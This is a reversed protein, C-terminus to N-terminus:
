LAEPPSIRYKDRRWPGRLVRPELWFWGHMRVLCRLLYEESHWPDLPSRTLPPTYEDM